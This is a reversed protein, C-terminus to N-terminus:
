EQKKSLSLAAVPSCYPKWHKTWPPVFILIRARSDSESKSIEKVPGVPGIWLRFDAFRMDM